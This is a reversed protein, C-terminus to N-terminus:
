SVMQIINMLLTTMFCQICEIRYVLDQVNQVKVCLFISIVQICICITTELQYLQIVAMVIIGVMLVLPLVCPIRNMRMVVTGSGVGQAHNWRLKM